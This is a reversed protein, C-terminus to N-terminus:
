DWDVYYWGTYEDEEGNKKDEVPDYYGTRVDYFGLDELFDAIGEAQTQTRCLLENDIFHIGHKTRGESETKKLAADLAEYTLDALKDLEQDETLCTSFFM